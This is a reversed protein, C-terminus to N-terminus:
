YATAPPPVCQRIPIPMPLCWVKKALKDMVPTAIKSDKNLCSLDGYGMDDTLIYIINPKDPAATPQQETKRTAAIGIIAIVSLTVIGTPYRRLNANSFM